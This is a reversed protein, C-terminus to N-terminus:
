NEHEYVQIMSKLEKNQKQLDINEKAARKRERLLNYYIRSFKDLAELIKVKEPELV